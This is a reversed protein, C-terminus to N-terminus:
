DGRCLFSSRGDFTRKSGTQLSSRKLFGQEDRKRDFCALLTVAAAALGLRWDLFFMFVLLILASLMYSMMNGLTSMAIEEIFVMDTSLVSSIKALIGGSTFYGM